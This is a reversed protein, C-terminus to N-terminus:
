IKQVETKKIKYGYKTRYGFRNFSFASSRSARFYCQNNEAIRHVVSSFNVPMTRQTDVNYVRNLIGHGYSRRLSSSCMFCNDDSANGDNQATNYGDIMVREAASYNDCERISGRTLTTRTDVLLTNYKLKFM